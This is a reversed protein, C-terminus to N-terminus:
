ILADMIHDHPTLWLNIWICKSTKSQSSSSFTHWGLTSPILIYPFDNYLPSLSMPVHLEGGQNLAHNLSIVLGQFSM